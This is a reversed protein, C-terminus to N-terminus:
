CCKPRRSKSQENEQRFVAYANPSSEQHNRDLFRQYASEDFIERFAESLLQCARLILALMETPRAKDIRAAPMERVLIDAGCPRKIM